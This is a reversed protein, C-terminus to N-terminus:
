EGILVSGDAAGGLAAFRWDNFGASFRSYGRWVNADTNEDITSKVELGVRDLWVAGGNEESYRTDLLMWPKSNKTIFNNLYSWVIVNWRGFQYNFGNNTTAPDKDAGITAFVEKKLQYDNPILITNPTVDLIEGNDGRFQQMATEMAGLADVSFADTFKNTQAEKKLKSPHNTAFLNVGDATKVDFTKGRFKAAGTIAGGFLAAGFLERTRYYGTIFGLPKKKLDMVVADDIIERSLAFSDKWTEHVFLKEYGEQMGDVPYAGNEGVPQFGDMATMSTYKESWHKSTGMAFVNKIVSEQEFSEARKELFLKIPAQSDGYISNAVNTSESFVINAM